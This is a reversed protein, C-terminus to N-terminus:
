PIMRPLTPADPDDHDPCPTVTLAYEAIQAATVNHFLGDGAFPGTGRACWTPEGDGPMM